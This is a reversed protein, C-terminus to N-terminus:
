EVCKGSLCHSCAKCIEEIDKFMSPWYYLPSLLKYVKSHNQHHIDLHAQMVLDKQVDVPVIIRPARGEKSSPVAMLGDPYNEHSTIIQSKITKPIKQNLLKKGIWTTIPALTIHKYKLESSKQENGLNRIPGQPSKFTVKKKSSRRVGSNPLTSASSANGSASSSKLRMNRTEIYSEVEKNHQVWDPLCKSEQILANISEAM